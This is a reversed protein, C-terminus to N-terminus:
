GGLDISGRILNFSGMGFSIENIRQHTPQKTVTNVLGGPESNALMFGAPGKVFEIREIMAADEQANWWIPGGVGNRYTGYTANTGRILLSADLDSGYSKSIGSVSRIMDNKTLAGMDVIAQRTSVMINQPIEILDANVRLSTSAKEAVYSGTGKVMFEELENVSEKM